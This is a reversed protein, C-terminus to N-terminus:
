FFKRSNIITLYINKFGNLGKIKFIKEKEYLKSKQYKSGLLAITNKYFFYVYGKNKELFYCIWLKDFNFSSVEM